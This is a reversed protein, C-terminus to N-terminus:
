STPASNTPLDKYEELKLTFSFGTTSKRVSELNVTKFRKETILQDKFKQITAPNVSYGDCTIGSATFNIATVVLDEPLNDIFYSYQSNFDEQRKMIAGISKTKTELVAVEDLLSKTSEIIQRKQQLGDKLDVIEQDVKFRFFFVCIVVFQTIVLIYRLYHFAFYMIKDVADKEKEPFLNIYYKM